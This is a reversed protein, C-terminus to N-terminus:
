SIELLTKRMRFCQCSVSCVFLIRPLDFPPIRCLFRMTSFWERRSKLLLCGSIGTGFQSKKKKDERTKKASRNTGKRRMTRIKKMDRVDNGMEDCHTNKEKM